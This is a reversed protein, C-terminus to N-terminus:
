AVVPAISEDDDEQGVEDEGRAVISRRRCDNVSRVGGCGSRAEGGDGDEEVSIAAREKAGDVFVRGCVKLGADRAWFARNAVVREPKDFAAGRRKIFQVDVCCQAAAFPELGSKRPCDFLSIEEGALAILLRSNVIAVRM